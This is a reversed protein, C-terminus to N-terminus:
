FLYVKKKNNTVLSNRVPTKLQKQIIKNDGRKDQKNQYIIM